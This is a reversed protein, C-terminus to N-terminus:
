VEELCHFCKDEFLLMFERETIKGYILRKPRVIHPNGKVSDANAPAVHVIILVSSDSRIDNPLGHYEAM